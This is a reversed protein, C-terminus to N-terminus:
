VVVQMSILYIGENQIQHLNKIVDAGANIYLTTGQGYSWGRLSGNIRLDLDAFLRPVTYHLEGASLNGMSIGIARKSTGAKLTFDNEAFTLSPLSILSVVLFIKSFRQLM